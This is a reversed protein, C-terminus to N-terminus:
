VRLSEVPIFEMRELTEDDCELVPKPDNLWSYSQHVPFYRQAEPSSTDLNFQELSAGVETRKSMHMSVFWNNFADFKLGEEPTLFRRLPGPCFTEMQLAPQPPDYVTSHYQHVPLLRRPEPSDSRLSEDDNENDDYKSVPTGDRFPLLRRSEPSPTESISRGSPADIATSESMRVFWEEFADFKFQEEPTLFRRLPAPYYTEMQPAPQPPDYVTPHFQHVPFLRRPAPSEAEVSGDDREDDDFEPVPSEHRFPVPRWPGPSEAELLEDNEQGNDFELHSQYVPSIKQPEPSITEAPEDNHQDDELEENCEYITFFERPEPSFAEDDVDLASHQPSSCTEFDESEPYDTWQQPKGSDTEDELESEDDQTATHIETDVFESISIPLPTSERSITGDTGHESKLFDVTIDSELPFYYADIEGESCFRLSRLVLPSSRYGDLRRISRM